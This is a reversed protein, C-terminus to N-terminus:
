IWAYSPRSGLQAQLINGHPYYKERLVRAVLSDPFKLLRWGQKALLARNFTELDKFGMGGHFKSRGLREWSMWSVHKAETSHGWWFRRIM